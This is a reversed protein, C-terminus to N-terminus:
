RTLLAPPLHGTDNFCGVGIQGNEGFRFTTIGCHFTGLQYWKTIPAELIQCLVARILNGHCVVLTDGSRPSRSFFQELVQQLRQKGLRRKALPVRRGSAGTPLIERLIPLAKVSIGPFRVAIIEATQKARELDSCYIKAINAACLRAATRRSQRRGIATLLGDGSGDPSPSFQGHRLFHLSHSNKMVHIERSGQTRRHNATSNKASSVRWLKAGDVITPSAAVAQSTVSPHPSTTFAPNSHCALTPREASGIRPQAM